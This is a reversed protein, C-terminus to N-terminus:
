HTHCCEIKLGNMLPLPTNSNVILQIWYIMGRNCTVRIVQDGNMIKGQVGNLLLRCAMSEDAPICARYADRMNDYEKYILTGDEEQQEIVRYNEM